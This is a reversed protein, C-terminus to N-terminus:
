PVDPLGQFSDCAIFRGPFRGHPSSRFSNKATRLAMHFLDGQFVGFEIYDGEIGSRAIFEFIEVMSLARLHVAMFQPFSPVWTYLRRMLQAAPRKWTKFVKDSAKM